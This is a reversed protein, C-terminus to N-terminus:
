IISNHSCQVVVAAPKKNDAAGEAEVLLPMVGDVVLGAEWVVGVAVVAMGVDVVEAMAEVMVVDEAKEVEEEKVVDM